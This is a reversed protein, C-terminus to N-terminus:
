LGISGDIKAGYTTFDITTINNGASNNLNLGYAYSTNNRVSTMAVGLQTSQNHYRIFGFMHGDEPVYYLDAYMTATSPSSVVLFGHSSNSSAGNALANGSHYTYNGSYYGSTVISGGSNIWRVRIPQNGSSHSGGVRGVLRYINFGDNGEYFGTNFQFSTATNSAQNYNAKKIWNIGNAGSNAFDRTRVGM